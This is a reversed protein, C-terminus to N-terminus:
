ATWICTHCLLSDELMQGNLLYPAQLVLAQIPLSCTDLHCYFQQKLREAVALKSLM